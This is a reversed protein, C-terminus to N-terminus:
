WCIAGVYTVLSFGSGILALIVRRLVRPHRYGRGLAVVLFLMIAAGAAVVGLLGLVFGPPYGVIMSAFKHCGRQWATLALLGM